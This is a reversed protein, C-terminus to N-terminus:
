ALGVKEAAESEAAAQEARLAAMREAHQAAAENVAKQQALAAEEKLRAEKAQM